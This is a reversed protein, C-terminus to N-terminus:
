PAIGEARLKAEYRLVDSLRAGKTPTREIDVLEIGAKELEIRAFAVPMKWRGAIRDVSLRPEKPILPFRVIRKRM